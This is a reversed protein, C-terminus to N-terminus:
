VIRESIHDGDPLITCSEVQDTYVTEINQWFLGYFQGAQLKPLNLAVHYDREAKLSSADFYFGLFCSHLERGRSNYSRALPVEKGDLLLRLQMDAAPHVVSAAMLLRTPILWTAKSDDVCHPQGCGSASHTWPIPYTTARAKLQKFYAQPIKFTGNYWGGTFDKSPLPLVPANGLMSPGAFHARIQWRAARMPAAGLTCQVGNVAAASPSSAQVLVSAEQGSVGLAEHLELKEDAMAVRARAGTAHLLRAPGVSHKRLELVRASGGEVSVVVSEQSAWTGVSGTTPFLESVQWHQDQAADLLGISEDVALTVNLQMPNPNFLFIFGEDGDMSHTGDVNGVSPGPLTPIWETNRLKPLNSDTWKLWDHIFNIDAKPLLEFEAPDRAPIMTFVNNLGATGLTSLLSYKYGLYDFDRTNSNNVCEKVGRTCYFHGDHDTRETQHFIFGPVRSSPLLMQTSFVYNVSRTRDGSVHDTHLTPAFGSFSEPNEDSAIPEAYSGSLDYWPGWKHNVQRHDM